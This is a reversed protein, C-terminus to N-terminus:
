KFEAELKRLAVKHGTLADDWSSYRYTEREEEETNLFIQTEFLLPPGEGFQYDVGLFVTSIYYKETRDQQVIRKRHPHMMFRGWVQVDDTQVPRNEDDLTWFILGDTKM